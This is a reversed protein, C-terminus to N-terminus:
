VPQVAQSDLLKTMQPAAVAPHLRNPVPHQVVDSEFGIRGIAVGRRNVRENLLNTYAAVKRMQHNRQATGDVDGRAECRADVVTGIGHETGGIKM